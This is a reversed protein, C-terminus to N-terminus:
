KNYYGLQQSKLEFKEAIELLINKHSSLETSLAKAALSNLHATESKTIKKCSEEVKNMLAETDKGYTNILSKIKNKSPRILENSKISKISEQVEDIKSDLVEWDTLESKLSELIKTEQKLSKEKLLDMLAELFMEKGAIKINGARLYRDVPGYTRVSLVQDMLNLIKSKFLDEENIKIEDVNKPQSVKEGTINSFKRM